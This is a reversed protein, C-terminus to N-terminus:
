SEPGKSAAQTSAPRGGGNAAEGVAADVAIWLRGSFVKVDALAVRTPVTAAPISVPGEPGVAPVEMEKELRV